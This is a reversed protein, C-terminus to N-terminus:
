NSFNMWKEFQNGFDVLLINFKLNTRKIKLLINENPGVTKVEAGLATKLTMRIEERHKPDPAVVLVKIPKQFM